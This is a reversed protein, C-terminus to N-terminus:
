GPPLLVEKQKFVTYDSTKLDAVYFTEIFSDLEPFERSTDEGTIIGACEASIQIIYDPKSSHLEEIFTKRLRQIYPDSVSHYFYFDQLYRTGPRVGTKLMAHVPGGVVWDLPQVTTHCNVNESRLYDVFTDVREFRPNNPAKLLSYKVSSPVLYLLMMVLFFCQVITNYKGQQRDTFLPMFSFSSLLVLFYFFIFLHHKFFQGSLVPYVSFVVAFWLLRIFTPWHEIKRAFTAGFFLPIFLLMHNGFKLFEKLLYMLRDTGVRYIIDKDIHSFLPWYETALDKFYPLAGNFWLYLLVTISPVAFCTVSLGARLLLTRVSSSNKEPRGLLSALLIPYAVITHPKLTICVGACISTIILTLINNKLHQLVALAASLLALVFFERQLSIDMAYYYYGFGSFISVFFAFGRNVKMLILFTNAMVASLLLIDTIRLLIDKGKTIHMLAAHLLYTGAMNQEFFDRYPVYHFENMLYGTYLLIATDQPIKWDMSGYTEIFLLIAFVASLSSLIVKRKLFTKM